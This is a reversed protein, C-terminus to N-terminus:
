DPSFGQFVTIKNESFRLTEQSFVFNVTFINFQVVFFKVESRVVSKLIKTMVEYHLLLM